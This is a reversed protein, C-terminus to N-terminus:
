ELIKAKRLLSCGAATTVELTITYDGAAAYNHSPQLMTSTNPNAPSSQAADGFNWLYSLGTTSGDANTSVNTFSASIDSLCFDPVQFDVLPLPSINLTDLASLQECGLSTKIKLQVVYSGALAYTHQPNKLSSTQGDGFDWTWEIVTGEATSSQDTFQVSQQACLPQSRTFQALPLATVHVSQPASTVSCDDQTILTLTPQYDGPTTYVHSFPAGATTNVM